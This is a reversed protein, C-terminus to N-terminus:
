RASSGELWPRISDMITRAILRHGAANPHGDIISNRYRADFVRPPFSFFPVHWADLAGSYARYFADSFATARDAYLFVVLPIDHDRCISVIGQLSHKAAIWAESKADYLEGLHTSMTRRRRVHQVATLVYSHTVLWREIGSSRKRPLGPTKPEVDNPVVVLVLFDPDYEIARKRLFEYETTTNWSGVGAAIVEWPPSSRSLVNRIRAAFISDQPAGWGFVVSDGLVLLRKTGEPKSVEFPPTRLGESNIRVSVGELTASWNPTHIYAYDPDPKMHSFYRATDFYYRIGIPDFVRLFIELLIFGVVLGYGVTFFARIWGHRRHTSSRSATM